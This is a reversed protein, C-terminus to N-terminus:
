ASAHPPPGSDLAISAGDALPVDDLAGDGLGFDLSGFDTGGVDMSGGRAAAGSPAAAGFPSGGRPAASGPPETDLSLAFPESADLALPAGARAPRVEPLGADIEM